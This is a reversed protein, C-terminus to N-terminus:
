ELDNQTMIDYTTQIEKIKMGISMEVSARDKEELRGLLSNYASTMEDVAEHAAKKEENYYVSNRSEEAFEMEDKATMALDTIQQIEEKLDVKSDSTYLRTGCRQACRLPTIPSHQQSDLQTCLSLTKYNTWLRSTTSTRIRQPQIRTSALFLHRLLM